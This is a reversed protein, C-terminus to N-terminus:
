SLLNKKKKESVLFLRGTRFSIYSNSPYSFSKVTAGSLNLPPRSQYVRWLTMNLKYEKIITQNINLSQHIPIFNKHRKNITILLEIDLVQKPVNLKYILWLIVRM